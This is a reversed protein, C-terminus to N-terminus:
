QQCSTWERITIGLMIQDEMEGNRLFSQRNVGEVKLGSAKAFRLALRNNNPVNTVLKKAGIETFVHAILLRAAKAAGAGWIRPLLCTHVEYCYARVAHLLFVGAPADDSVLMWHFGDHDQPDAADTGDEHIHPFIAPHSLIEKVIVM